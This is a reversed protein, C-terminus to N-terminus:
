VPELYEIMLQLTKNNRFENVDLKYVARIKDSNQGLQENTTNFAIADIQLTSNEPQLKLKLHKEGVIRWEMVNFCNDFLPEPFQQGWPGSYRLLDALQINFDAEALEGDTFLVNVLDDKSLLGDVVSVFGAKFAAFDAEDMSLGAAMAHGGFKKIISPHTKDLLDLADRINLGKISRASGKIEGNDSKAFAIVPRHFQEKIRSALIGIVGQHWDEHYIVIASPLESVDLASIVKDLLVMAQELMDTEISRRQSNLEHLQEAIQKCFRSDDSLLCDIGLSMDELRGAANLRPGVAFGLDSSVCNAQNRGAVKLLAAIGPCCEGARIRKLGQDVLIRNNKDLPVVDAVTGLAVLDLVKALNPEKRAATFWVSQRLSARVAMMVYFIVGVGAISKSPFTCAPQNPNVIARAAPLNDAALHHDTVVVDIEQKNAAQVGEISSIGNDVTIILDPKLQAAYEVLEVTLGYGFDFRNPVLYDVHSAGFLRLTRVAVATSTAGDADFDGVVLIKKNQKIADVIVEVADNIGALSDFSLLKSLQNDVDDLSGVKRHRYISQLVPHVGAVAAISEDNAHREILVTKM